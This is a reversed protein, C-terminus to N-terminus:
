EVVGWKWRLKGEDDGDLCGCHTGV